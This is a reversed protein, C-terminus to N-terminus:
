TSLHGHFRRSRCMVAVAVHVGTIDRGVHAAAQPFRALSASALAPQAHMVDPSVNIAVDVPNDVDPGQLQLAMLSREVAHQLNVTWFYSQWDSNPSASLTVTGVSVDSFRKATAPMATHNVRLTFNGLPAEPEEPLDFVVAATYKGPNSVVLSEVDEAHAWDFRHKAVAPACELDTECVHGDQIV